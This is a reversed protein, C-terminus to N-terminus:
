TRSHWIICKECSCLEVVLNLPILFYFLLDYKLLLIAHTLSVAFVSADCREGDCKWRSKHHVSRSQYFIGKPRRPTFSNTSAAFNASCTPFLSHKWKTTLGSFYRCFKECNMFPVIVKRNAKSFFAPFFFFFFVLRERKCIQKLISM